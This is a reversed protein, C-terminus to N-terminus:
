FAREVAAKANEVTDYPALIHETELGEGRCVIARWMPPVNEIPKISRVYGVRRGTADFCRYYPIKTTIEESWQFPGVEAFRTGFWSAM